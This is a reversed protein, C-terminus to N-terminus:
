RRMGRFNKRKEEWLRPGRLVEDLRKGLVREIGRRGCAEDNGIRNLRTVLVLSCDVEDEESFTGINVLLYTIIM